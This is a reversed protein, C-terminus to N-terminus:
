SLAMPRLFMVDSATCILIGLLDVAFCFASLCRSNDALRGCNEFMVFEFMQAVYYKPTFTVHKM